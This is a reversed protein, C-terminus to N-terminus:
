KTSCAARASRTGSGTSLADIKMLNCLAITLWLAWSFPMSMTQAETRLLRVQSQRVSQFCCQIKRLSSPFLTIAKHLLHLAVSLSIGVVFWTGQAMKRSRKPYTAAASRHALRKAMTQPPKSFSSLANMQWAITWRQRALSCYKILHSGV